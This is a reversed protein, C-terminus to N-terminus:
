RGGGHQRAERPALRAIVLGMAVLVTAATLWAITLVTAEASAARLLMGAARLTIPASRVLAGPLDALWGPAHLLSPVAGIVAIVFAALMAGLPLPRSVRVAEPQPLAGPLALAEAVRVALLALEGLREACEDCSGAHELARPSIVDDQGDALATLCLDSLHGNPHFAEEDTLQRSM